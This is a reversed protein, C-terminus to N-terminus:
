VRYMEVYNMLLVEPVSIVKNKDWYKKLASYSAADSTVVFDPKFEDIDAIRFRAMKEIINESIGLPFDAPAAPKAMEKNTRLEEYYRFLPKILMRPIEFDKLYRAMFSGDHYVGLKDMKIFNQIDNYKTKYESFHVIFLNYFFTTELILEKKIEIGLERYWETLAYYAKPSSIIIKYASINNLYEAMEEAITTAKDFFGVAKIDYGTEIIESIIPKINKKNMLQISAIASEPNLKLTESDILYLIDEHKGTNNISIIENFIQSVDGYLNGYKNLCEEAYKIYDAKIGQKIIENRAEHFVPVLDRPEGKVAYVCNTKCLKCGCCNYIVNAVDENYEIEQKALCRVAYAKRGPYVTTRRDITFVPCSYVCQDHCTSCDDLLKNYKDLM